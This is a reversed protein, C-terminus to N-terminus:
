RLDVVEGLVVIIGEVLMVQVEFDIIVLYVKIFYIKVQIGM